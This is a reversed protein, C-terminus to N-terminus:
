WDPILANVQRSGGRKIARAGEAGVVPLKEVGKKKMADPVLKPDLLGAQVLVSAQDWYIHESELKSGRVHFISVIVIEIRKNTPPVGPLLWPIEVTHTLAVFIEDCVRGTGITRSLLRLSVNTAQPIPTFFNEYFDTLDEMGVGGTLTPTHIVHAYPRTQKMARGQQGSHLYTAQTDRVAEIDNELRFGKRVTAISRTFAVGDAVPDYEELDSEAFGPQVGSYTYAKFALHLWEGYGVGPDIRKQVTKAKGQIGLVEPHKQVGIKTGALHVLVQISAPFKTHVSPIRSPYYAVVACLKPHNPKTHGELALSAADGYAVIAYYESVGFADGVAHLRHIFDWGGKLLPVYKVFFGEEVWRKQTEEDFDETEAALIVNASKSRNLVNFFNNEQSNLWPTSFASM